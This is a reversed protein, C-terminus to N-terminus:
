SHCRMCSTHAAAVAVIGNRQGGANELVVRKRSTSLGILNIGKTINLGNTADAAERYVGPEVLVWGGPSARDIAQQISNGPQVVQVFRGDGGASAPPSAVVALAVLVSCVGRVLSFLTM